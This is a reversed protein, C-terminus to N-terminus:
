PNLSNIACCYFAESEDQFVGERRTEVANDMAMMAHIVAEANGTEREEESAADRIADWKAKMAWRGSELIRVEEASYKVDDIPWTHSARFYRDSRTFKITQKSTM